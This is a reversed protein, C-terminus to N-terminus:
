AGILVGITPLLAYDAAIDFVFMFPTRFVFLAMRLGAVVLMVKASVPPSWDRDFFFRPLFLSAKNLRLKDPCTTRGIPVHVGLSLARELFRMYGLGLAPFQVAVDIGAMTLENRRTLDSEVTTGALRETCTSPVLVFM